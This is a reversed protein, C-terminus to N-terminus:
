AKIEVFVGKGARRAHELSEAADGAAIECAVGLPFWDLAPDRFMKAESGRLHQESVADIFGDV